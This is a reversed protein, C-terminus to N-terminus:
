ELRMDEIVDVSLKM